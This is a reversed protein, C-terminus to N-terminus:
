VEQPKVAAKWRKMHRCTKPSEKSFQWGQCTCYVTHDAALRIQHKLNSNSKSPVLGLVIRKAGLATKIRRTLEDESIPRMGTGDGIKGPGTVPVQASAHPGRCHAPWM